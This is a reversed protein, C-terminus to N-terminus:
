GTKQQEPNTQRSSVTGEMAYVWLVHPRKHKLSLKFRWGLATVKILGGSDEGYPCHFWLPNKMVFVQYASGSLARSITGRLWCWMPLAGGGYDVGCLCGGNGSSNNRGKCSEQGSQFASQSLFCSYPPARSSVAGERGSAYGLTSPIVLLGALILALLRMMCVNLPWLNLEKLWPAPPSLLFFFLTVAAILHQSIIDQRYEKYANYM